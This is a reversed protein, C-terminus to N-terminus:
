RQEGTSTARTGTLTLFVEDLSPTETGFDALRVGSAGLASVAHSLDDEGGLPLRVLGAREDIMATGLGADQLIRATHGCDAANAPCLRLWRQGVVQGLEAATGEAVTRGSDLVTLRDALAEAEDMYQTTLLVTTGNETLGRVTRWVTNRSHPDLGTTPEDLFLVPPRGLVSAALDLRRRMGGSYKGAPRNAAETLGFQELLEDARARGRRASSGFLRAILYLNERGSIDEDVSAYQGTLGILARVRGPERVVDYGRIGAYGSDPRILTALIRVLTTKGAGNPGLLGHIGAEPVELGIGDLATMSGYRKRIGEVRIAASM